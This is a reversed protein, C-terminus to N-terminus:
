LNLIAKKIIDAQRLNYHANKLWGSERHVRHFYKMQPVVYFQYGKKLWLYNVYLTDTEKIESHPQVVAVYNTKPVIYNCTNLMTWLLPNDKHKRIFPMNITCGSFQTYDFNPYALSPMYITNEKAKDVGEMFSKVYDPYIINDSDFLIVWDCSCNLVAKQKNLLMGINQENYGVWIKKNFKPLNALKLITDSNSCDDQIVIEKIENQTLVETFSELLLGYRNHNTIALSLEM